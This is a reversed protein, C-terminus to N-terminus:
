GKPLASSHGIKLDSPAYELAARPFPQKFFRDTM